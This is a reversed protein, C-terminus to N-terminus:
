DAAPRRVAPRCPPHPSLHAKWERSQVRDDRERPAEAGESIEPLAFTKNYHTLILDALEPAVVWMFREQTESCLIVSPNLTVM